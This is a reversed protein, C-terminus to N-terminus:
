MMTIMLGINVCRGSHHVQWAMLFYLAIHPLMITVRYEGLLLVIGSCERFGWLKDIIHQKFYQHESQVGVCWMSYLIDESGLTWSYSLLIKDKKGDKAHCKQKVFFLPFHIRQDMDCIRSM